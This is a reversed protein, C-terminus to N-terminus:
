LRGRQPLRDLQEDLIASLQAVDVAGVLDYESAKLITARLQEIAKALKPLLRLQALPDEEAESMEYDRAIAKTIQMQRRFAEISRRAPTELDQLDIKNWLGVLTHEIQWLQQYISRDM